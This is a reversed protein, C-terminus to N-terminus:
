HKQTKRICPSCSIHQRPVPSCSFLKNAYLTGVQLAPSLHNGAQTCGLHIFYQAYRGFPNDKMNKREKREKGAARDIDRNVRCFRHLSERLSFMFFMKTVCSLCALSTTNCEGALHCVSVNHRWTKRCCFIHWAWCKQSFLFM